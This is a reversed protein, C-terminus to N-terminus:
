QELLILEERVYVADLGALPQASCALPAWREEPVM